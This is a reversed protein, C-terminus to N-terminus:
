DDAKQWTIEVARAHWGAQIIQSGPEDGIYYCKHTFDQPDQSCTSPETERLEGYSIPRPPSDGSLTVWDALYKRHYSCHKEGIPATMFDCDHPRKGGFSIREMPVSYQFAAYAKGFWDSEVVSDWMSIIVLALAIGGIATAGESGKSV